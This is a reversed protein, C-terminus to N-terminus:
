IVETIDHPVLDDLDNVYGLTKLFMVVSMDSTHAVEAIDQTM